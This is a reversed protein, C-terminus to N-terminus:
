RTGDAARGLWGERVFPPTYDSLSRTRAWEQIAKERAAETCLLSNKPTIFIRWLDLRDADWCTQVTVDAATSGDTHHDCATILLDFDKDSLSFHEPRLKRALESGRRGHGPDRTESERRSDHFVAFLEVVEPNAGTQAALRL